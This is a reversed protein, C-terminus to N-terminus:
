VTAADLRPPPLRAGVFDAVNVAAPHGRNCLIIVHYRPYISLDGNIGPAGGGHGYCTVANRTRISFGLGWHGAGAQIRPTMMAALTRTSVLRGRRLGVTFAHLDEVTSYGGGAPLGSYPPLPRLGTQTSGTYPLAGPYPSAFSLSTAAMGCPRFVRGEVLDAYPRGTVRELIAGLLVYGYNSYGWRSGPEFAPARAGYFAVLGAITRLRAANVDYEPGFIDGTGGSHTLLHEITVLEAITRNPYDVLHAGIRDSLSLRGAEVLQMVAVATFMKGMSGICFRTSIRNARRGAIDAMGAARRFLVDSGRAVIAAGSFRGTRAEAGLKESLMALVRREELRRIASTTPAGAFSIDGLREAGEATLVLRSHRDWLRDKMWATIEDPGTVQAGLLEFVGSIERVGLDDDVYPLVSPAFLEVFRRYAGFDPDNFAALWRQLWQTLLAARSQGFAPGSSLGILAGAASTLLDRRNM